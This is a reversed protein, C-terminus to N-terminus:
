LGLAALLRQLDVHLSDKGETSHRVAGDPAGSSLWQLKDPAHNGEM